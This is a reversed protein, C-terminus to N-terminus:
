ADFRDRLFSESSVANRSGRKAQASKKAHWFRHESCKKSCYNELCDIFKLENM